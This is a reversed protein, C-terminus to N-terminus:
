KKLGGIFDPQCDPCIGSTLYEYGYHHFSTSEPYSRVYRDCNVCQNRNVCKRIERRLKTFRDLITKTPYQNHTFYTKCLENNLRAIEKKAEIAKPDNM